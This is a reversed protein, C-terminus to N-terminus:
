FGSGCSVRQPPAIWVYVPVGSVASGIKNVGSLRRLQAGTQRVGPM